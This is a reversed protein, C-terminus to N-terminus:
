GSLWAMRAIWEIKLLCKLKQNQSIAFVTFCSKHQTRTKLPLTLYEFKLSNSHCIVSVFMRCIGRSARFIAGLTPLCSPLSPFLFPTWLLCHNITRGAVVTQKELTVRQVDQQNALILLKEFCRSLMWISGHLPSQSPNMTVQGVSQSLSPHGALETLARGLAIWHGSREKMSWFLGPEMPDPSTQAPPVQPNM